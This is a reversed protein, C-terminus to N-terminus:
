LHTTDTTLGRFSPPALRLCVPSSFSPRDSFCPAFLRAHYSASFHLLVFYFSFCCVCFDVPAKFTHIWASYRVSSQVSRMEAEGARGLQASLTMPRCNAAFCAPARLERQALLVVILNLHRKFLCFMWTFLMNGKFGRSGQVPRCLKLCFVSSRKKIGTM